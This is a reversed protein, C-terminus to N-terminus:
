IKGRAPISGVNGRGCRPARVVPSGPGVGGCSVVSVYARM